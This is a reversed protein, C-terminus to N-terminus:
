VVCLRDDNGEKEIKIKIEKAGSVTSVLMNFSEENNKRFEELLLSDLEALGHSLSPNISTSIEGNVMASFYMLIPLSLKFKSKGNIILKLDYAEEVDEIEVSRKCQIVQLEDLKVKGLLLYVNQFVDDNRRLTLYLVQEESVAGVNKISLAEFIKNRLARLKRPSEEKSILENYYSFMEGYIQNYVNRLDDDNEVQSFVLFFRRIAKRMEKQKRYIDNKESIGSYIERSFKNWVDSIINKLEDDFCSFDGKVFMAYDENLSISDLNMDQLLSIAKIQTADQIKQIGRYGFFLNAFNYNFKYYKTKDVRGIESCKRNGTFAYSIQAIMQRITVRKDNEQLWRYFTEVFSIVREKNRNVFKYNFYMPCKDKNKCNICKEWLYENCINNIIKNVFGINEIRAINILYWEYNGLKISESKNEDLQKLIIDEIRDVENDDETLLERFSKILPGTNSILISSMGKSPADLAEKLLRSQEKSSIESMDKVYMLKIDGKICIESVKLKENERILDLKKLVQVLLSTKGDGAHGTLIYCKNQKTKINRVIFEGLKRDVRIYEYFKNTVQSEALANVNGSTANNMSNLYDVFGNSM